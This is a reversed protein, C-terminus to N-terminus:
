VSDCRLIEAKLQALKTMLERDLNDQGARCQAAVRDLDVDVGLLSRLQRRLDDTMRDGLWAGGMEIMSCVRGVAAPGATRLMELTAVQDEVSRVYDRTCQARRSFAPEPEPPLRPQANAGAELSVAAALVVAMAFLTRRM